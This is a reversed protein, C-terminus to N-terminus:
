HLPEGPARAGPGDRDLRRRLEDFEEEEALGKEVLLGTTLGAQALARAADQETAELRAALERLREGVAELEERALGHLHLAVAAAVGGALLAAAALAVLM